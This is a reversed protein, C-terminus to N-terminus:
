ARQAARGFSQLQRLTAEAFLETTIVSGQPCTVWGGSVPVPQGDIDVTGGDPHAQVWADGLYLSNPLLNVFAIPAPAAAEVEAAADAPVDGQPETNRTTAM